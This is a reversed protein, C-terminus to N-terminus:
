SRSSPANGEARVKTWYGRPPKNLGYKKAWKEVAKDSVGYHKSIQVTPKEWLLKELVEKTPWEVKKQKEKKIREKRPKRNKRDFEWHDNRCLVLINTIHNVESILASEPFSHIPKIHCVEVHKDYGCFQCSKIDKYQVRARGRIINFKASQGHRSSHVCDGVTLFEIRNKSHCEVCQKSKITKHKGCSCLDYLWPYKLASNM